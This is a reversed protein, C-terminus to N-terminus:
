APAERGLKELVKLADGWVVIKDKPNRLLYAPHFTPMVDIGEYKTFHGRIRSIPKENQLLSQVAVRGLAMIVRPQIIEIQKKLFPICTAVEDEKPDRNGPPRCKVINAIYVEERKFGMREILRTLLRGAEGVFPRGQIDEDKGPGEGVFILEANPNGEGFVVTKRKESLICRTCEGIHHRLRELAEGKEEQNHAVTDPLCLPLREFGLAGYFRLVQAIALGKNV